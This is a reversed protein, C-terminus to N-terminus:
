VDHYQRQVHQQRMQSMAAEVEAKDRMAKEISATRNSVTSWRDIDQQLKIARREKKRIKECLACDEQKRDVVSVFKLGCTEGTRYEKACQDTFSGWRWYGCLWQTQRYFCM